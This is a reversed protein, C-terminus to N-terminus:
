KVEGSPKTREWILFDGDKPSFSSQLDERFAVVSIKGEVINCLEAKWEKQYETFDSLAWDHHGNSPRLEVAFHLMGKRRTPSLWLSALADWQEAWKQLREILRSDLMQSEFGARTIGNLLLSFHINRMIEATCKQARGGNRKGFSCEKMLLPRSRGAFPWVVFHHVRAIVAACFASPCEARM